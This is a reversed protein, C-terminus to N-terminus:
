VYSDGLKKVFSPRREKDAKQGYSLWFLYAECAANQEQCFNWYYCKDPLECPLNELGEVAKAGSM